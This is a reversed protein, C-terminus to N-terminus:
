QVCIADIYQDGGPSNSRNSIKFAGGCERKLLEIASQENIAHQIGGAYYTIEINDGTHYVVSAQKFVTAQVIPNNGSGDSICGAVQCALMCGLLAAGVRM